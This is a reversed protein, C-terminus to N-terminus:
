ASRIPVLRNEEVPHDAAPLQLDPAKQGIKASLESMDRLGCVNCIAKVKCEQKAIEIETKIERAQM